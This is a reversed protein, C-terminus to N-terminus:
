AQVVARDVVLLQEFALAAALADTEADQEFIDCDRFLTVRWQDTHNLYRRCFTVDLPLRETTALLDHEFDPPASARGDADRVFVNLWTGDPAFTGCNRVNLNLLAWRVIANQFRFLEPKIDGPTVAFGTPAVAVRKSQLFTQYDTQSRAPEDPVFNFM